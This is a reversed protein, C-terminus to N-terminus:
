EDMDDTDKGIMKDKENEQRINKYCIELRVIDYRKYKQLIKNRNKDFM